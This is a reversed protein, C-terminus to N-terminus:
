EKASVQGFRRDRNAYDQLAREFDREGFDPWLVDTVYFESYASQWLLFNSLRMEGGTRIILDPDPSPYTYLLSAVADDTIEEISRDGQSVQSVLRKIVSVIEQRGGYNFAM